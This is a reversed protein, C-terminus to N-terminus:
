PESAGAVRGFIMHGTSTQLSNTVSVSVTDGLMHDAEEVVVLTGDDLYGVAQGTEKGRRTLRVAIQEGPVVQPRLAEALAHISRVPVELSQGRDACGLQYGYPGEIVVVWRGFFNLQVRHSM